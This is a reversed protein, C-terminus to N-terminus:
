TREEPRGSSAGFGEITAEAGQLGDIQLKIDTLKAFNEDTLDRELAAQALKLERHLTRMKTHLIVVHEFAKEVDPPAAEPRVWWHLASTVALLREVMRVFGSSELYAALEEASSVGHAAADVLCGRLRLAEPHEFDLASVTECHRDLLFPHVVLAALILAERAPLASRGGRVLSGERVGASFTGAM